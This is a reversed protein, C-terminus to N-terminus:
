ELRDLLRQVRRAACDALALAAKREFDLRADQEWGYFEVREDGERILDHEVLCATDLDMTTGPGRLDGGYVADVPDYYSVASVPGALVLGALLAATRTM